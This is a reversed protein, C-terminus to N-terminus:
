FLKQELKEVLEKVCGKEFPTKLGAAHLLETYPLGAGLRCLKLYRSWADEFDEDMQVKFQLACVSALCYDIYYFPLGFIHHQKQWFGGEAFFSDEGYDLHPKYEKELRAWAAKRGAPTMEPNEYVIHQFEDVTCGYPIFQLFSELHVQRYEEARDGFLLEMWKGTFFEMSMSHIEACDMTNETLERVEEDRMVYGQFAHGCEHTIVDADGSTGNFNALIVPAKYDPMYNMYGGSRKNKRGEVDFLEHELMFDFFKGTEPSLERYLTQGAKLIEEATGVPVPDGQPLYVNEDVYSLKELGLRKRKKENLKGIFPVLWEKVENRFQEVEKQGYWARGMREYGLPTFNKYGLLRGQATRNKVLGDYIEDIEGTVSDFYEALAKHAAFRVQRDSNVMYPRLLSINLERGDFPIRAAAILKMYRNTLENEEKKLSILREDNARFKLEMAHFRAPSIKKELEDRYPSEYLLKQYKAQLARFGPMMEDYYQREKEYFANTMDGDFRVRAIVEQTRVRGELAYYRRHVEFQEEGSDAARFDEMLQELEREAKQIDAREYPWESFKM